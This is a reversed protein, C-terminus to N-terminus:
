KKDQVILSSSLNNVLAELKDIREQQSEIQKQQEQNKSSLEKVSNILPIVFEAYSLNLTREDNESEVIGSFNLGLKRLTEKVDQAILGDHLQKESDNKYTFTATKLGNVFELGLKDSYEVNDKLRLDSGVSWNVQGQILTVSSNGIRVMNSANAFAGYGIVTVNTLNGSAVNTNTGIATNFGGTTNSLLACFGIATNYHGTTNASLASSGNSTNSNGTTNEKLADVGNATNHYGTTNAILASSGNATNQYGTTNGNLAYVGNATNLYGTTNSCLAGIGNATNQYGTTNNLLASLGIATNYYGTINNMLARYGIATNFNGTTTLFLAHYGFATNYSIASKGKGVTLGNVLLDSRFTKIGGITQNRTTDVADTIGYGSLTTPKGSSIKNWDLGPIDTAVLSRFSPPGALLPHTAFVRNAPQLALTATLTGGATVPSGSVSFLNPLSLGVSTVTGVNWSRNESLSLISGNISITRANPVYGASAHNGWGYATNWNTINNSLIGKAPSLDFVPDTENSKGAKEAYLAYPVSLLQTTGSITYNTGGSPDTETKLFYPGASWDIAPFSGSLVTGSGIEISVLGNVNTQPDPTYTEQYVVAGTVSGKLISIRLGVSHSTVLAGGANRVVCQYSMKEPPQSFVSLTLVIIIFLTLLRKM